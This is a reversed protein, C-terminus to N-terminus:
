YKQHALMLSTIIIHMAVKCCCLGLDMAAANSPGSPPSKELEAGSDSMTAAATLVPFFAKILEQEGELGKQAIM